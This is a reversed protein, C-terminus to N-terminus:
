IPLFGLYRSWALRIKLQIFKLGYYIRSKKLIDLEVCAYYLNVSAYCICSVVFFSTAHYVLNTQSLDGHWLLVYKVCVFIFFNNVVNQIM